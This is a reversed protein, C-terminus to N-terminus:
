WMGAEEDTPRDQIELATCIQQKTLRRDGIFTFLDLGTIAATLMDVAYLGDRYRYIEIPDTAPVATLDHASM